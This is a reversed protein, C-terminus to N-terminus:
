QLEFYSKLEDSKCKFALYYNVAIIINIAYRAVPWLYVTNKTWFYYDNYFNLIFSLLINVFNTYSTNEIAKFIFEDELEDDHFKLTIRSM